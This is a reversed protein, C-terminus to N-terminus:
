GPGDRDLRESMTRYRAQVSAPLGDLTSPTLRAERLVIRADSMKGQGVLAEALGIQFRPTLPVAQLAQSFTREAEACREARLQAVGLTDLVGARQDDSLQARAAANSAREALALTEAPDAEPKGVLMYALNNLAQLDEPRVELTARYAAEAEALNGLQEQSVATMRRAEARVAPEPHDFLPALLRVCETAAENDGSRAAMVHWREALMGRAILSNQVRPEIERLFTKQRALRDVSDALEVLTRAAFDEHTEWEHLVGLRCADAGDLMPLFTRCGRMARVSPAEALLTELAAQRDDAAVAFHVHTIFM